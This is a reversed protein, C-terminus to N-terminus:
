PARRRLCAPIDLGDGPEVLDSESVWDALTAQDELSLKRWVKRYTEKSHEPLPGLRSSVPRPGDGSDIMM